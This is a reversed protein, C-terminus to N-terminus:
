SEDFFSLVYAARARLAPTVECVVVGEDPQGYLILEGDILVNILPLVALDEEGEVTIVAPARSHAEAVASILEDTITGAPNKVFILHGAFQPMKLYPSRKTFGDIIAVAPTLCASFANATVVDGVTCFPKNKLVPIIDLFDPFLKGFPEKLLTRHREPLTLM